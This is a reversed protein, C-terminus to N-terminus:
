MKLVGNEDLLFLIMESATWVHTPSIRNDVYYSSLIDMQQYKAESANSEWSMPYVDSNVYINHTDHSCHGKAWDLYPYNTQAEYDSPLCGDPDWWALSTYTTTPVDKSFEYKEGLKNIALKYWSNQYSTHAAYDTLGTLYYGNDNKQAIKKAENKIKSILKDNKQDFLALIYLMEGLNDPEKNGKNQLDYIETENLIWSEILDLNNTNLLVMAGLAADRYWAKNYVLINPIIKGDKINFLIEGYLTKLVEQYKLNSFNELKIAVDTDAILKDNIYIGKSNETIKYYHNDTTVVIVTYINPIVLDFKVKGFDHIVSKDDFNMLKGNLYIIKKRGAFGLFYYSDNNLIDTTQLNYDKILSNYEKTLKHYAKIEKPYIKELKSLLKDKENQIREKESAISIFGLKNYSPTTEILTFGSLMFIITFILSIYLYSKRNKILLKIQWYILITFIVIFCAIFSYFIVLSKTTFTQAWFSADIYNKVFMLLKNFSKLNFIIEYITFLLLFHKLKNNEKQSLNVILLLFFLYLFHLSYLFTANNGYFTHLISNFLITLIIGINLLFNSKFNKIILFGIVGFFIALVVLNIKTVKQFDLVNNGIEEKVFLDSAIISNLYDGKFTNKINQLELSKITYDAEEKLSEQFYSSLKPTSHYVINQLSVLLFCSIIIALNLVVLNKFNVKKSLLLVLSVILFVIYNTITIGLTFIGLFYLILYYKKNIKNQEKLIKAGFYWLYILVLAALNYLEIGVTFVINSFCFGFITAIIINLKNNKSFLTSFLYIGVVNLSSVISSFIIISLVGNKCIGNLILIIPQIFLIFLPHVSSRHHDTVVKIYDAYVRGSDSQFLFNMNDNIKYSYSILMSLVFYIFFFCIFLILSNKFLRKNKFYSENWNLIKHNKVFYSNRAKKALPMDKASDSYFNEIQYNKVEKNLRKVKEDKHCNEGNIKGTTIDMDTGICQCNYKLALPKILFEPSATIIYNNESKELILIFEQKIKYQNQKWFELVLRETDSSKKLFSFVQEKFEKTSKIKLLYLIFGMIVKLLLKFSVKKKKLCFLFFDLSSDGDYITGDFDYINLKKM